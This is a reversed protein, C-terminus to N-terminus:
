DLIEAIRVLMAAAEARTVKQEPYFNGNNGMIVGMTRLAHITGLDEAPIADQDLFVVTGAPVDAGDIGLARALMLAFQHRDLQAEDFYSTQAMIRLANREQLQAKAWEPM